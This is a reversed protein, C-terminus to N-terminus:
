LGDNDPRSAGARRAPALRGSTWALRIATRARSLDGGTMGGPRARGGVRARQLEAERTTFSAPWTVCSIRTTTRGWSGRGSAPMATVARRTGAGHRHPPRAPGRAHRLGMAAPVEVARAAVHDGRPHLDRRHHRGLGAEAAGPVRRCADHGRRGPLVALLEGHIPDVPYRNADHGFAYGGTDRVAGRIASNENRYRAPRVPTASM